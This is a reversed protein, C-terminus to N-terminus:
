LPELVLFSSGDPVSQMYEELIQNLNDIRQADTMKPGYNVLTYLTSLFNVEASRSFDYNLSTGITHPLQIFIEMKEEKQYYTNAYSYVLGETGDPLLGNVQGAIQPIKTFHIIIKEPTQWSQPRDLFDGLVALAVEKNNYGVKELWTQLKAYDKITFQYESEDSVLSVEPFNKGLSLSYDSADNKKSFEYVVIGIVFSLLVFFFILLSRKV